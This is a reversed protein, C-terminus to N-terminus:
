RVEWETSRAISFATKSSSGFLTIWVREDGDSVLIVKDGGVAIRNLMYLM